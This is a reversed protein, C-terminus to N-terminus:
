KKNQSPNLPTTVESKGPRYHKDQVETKGTSRPMIARAGKSLPLEAVQLGPLQIANTTKGDPKKRGPRNAFLISYEGTGLRSDRKCHKL